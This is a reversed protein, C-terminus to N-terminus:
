FTFARPREFGPVPAAAADAFSKVGFSGAARRGIVLRQVGGDVLCAGLRGGDRLQEVVGDPILEVAGDILILDYPAGSQDGATLDGQGCETVQLGMERLVAAAYAPATGIVLAREAPRPELETLLRGLTAPPSLFRGDGLAVIRDVYALARGEEPLFQERPVSAMAAIVLPDTVAQPRLQNDVMARRAARFDM